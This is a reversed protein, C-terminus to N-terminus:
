KLICAKKCDDISEFNNENGGCGGYQFIVCQNTQKDFRYRELLARCRGGDEPLNCIENKPQEGENSTNESQEESVVERGEIKAEEKCRIECKAKSAFNNANGDCGGWIFEECGKREENYYWRPIAARCNGVESPLKCFSKDDETNISKSEKSLNKCKSNCEELTEFNNTNGGCGGYYFQKCEGDNKDHYFRPLMARCMGAEAEESCDVDAQKSEKVQTKQCKKPLDAITPGSTPSDDKCELGEGCVGCDYDTDPSFCSGCTEGEKKLNQKSATEGKKLHSRSEIQVHQSHCKSMCADETHFNNENGNCGSYKFQKCTKSDKDFYWRPMSAFCNGVQVDLNCISAKNQDSQFRGIEIVPNSELREELDNIRAENHSVKEPVGWLWTFLLAFFCLAVLLSLISVFLSLQNNSKRNRLQIWKKCKIPFFNSDKAPIYKVEHDEMNNDLM